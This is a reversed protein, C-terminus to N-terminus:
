TTLLTAPKHLQAQIQRPAPSLAPPDETVDHLAQAFALDVEYDAFRMVEQARPQEESTTALRALDQATKLPSQDLLAAQATAPTKGQGQLSGLKPSETTRILGYVTAGLLLVLVIATTKQTTKMRRRSTTVM